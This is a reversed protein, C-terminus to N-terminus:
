KCIRQARELLVIRRNDSRRKAELRLGEAQYVALFQLQKVRPELVVDSETIPQGSTLADHTIKLGAMDSLRDIVSRVVCAGTLGSLEDAALATDGFKEVIADRLWAPDAGALIENVADRAEAVYHGFNVSNLNRWRARLRKQVVRAIMERLLATRAEVASADLAARVRGLYRCNVGYQQLRRSVNVPESALAQAVQPIRVELLVRTAETVAGNHERWDLLGFRSFADSSLHPGGTSVYFNLFEQSATFM